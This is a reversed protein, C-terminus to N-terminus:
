QMTDQTLTLVERGALLAVRETDVSAQIVSTVADLTGRGAGEPSYVSVVLDVPQPRTSSDRSYVIVEDDDRLTQTLGERLMRTHRGYDASARDLTVLALVLDRQPQSQEDPEPNATLAHFVGPQTVAVGGFAAEAALGTPFEARYAIALWSNRSIFAIRPGGHVSFDSVAALIVSRLGSRLFSSAVPRWRPVSEDVPSSTSFAVFQTLTGTDTQHHNNSSM